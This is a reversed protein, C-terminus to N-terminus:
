LLYQLYTLVANKVRGNSFYLNGQEYARSATLLYPNNRWKQILHIDSGDHGDADLSLYARTEDKYDDIYYKSDPTKFLSYKKGKLSFSILYRKIDYKKIFTDNEKGTNEYAYLQTQESSMQFAFSNKYDETADVHDVDQWLWIKGKPATFKADPNIYEIMGLSCMVPNYVTSKNGLLILRTENRFPKNEGRDVTQYLSTLAEWEKEPTERTGLYKTADKSIFEDYIITFYDSYVASKYDEEQALPIICGCEEWDLVEKQKNGEGEIHKTRAVYYKGNYFRFGEIEIDTNHKIISLANEFFTKCTKYTVDKRRRSYIFKHGNLLYDIIVYCAVGTSKGINRSGTVLIIPRNYTLAPKISFFGNAIQELYKYTNGSYDLSM